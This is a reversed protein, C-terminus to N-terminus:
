VAIFRQIDVIGLPCSDPHARPPAELVGQFAHDDPPQCPPPLASTSASVLADHDRAPPSPHDGRRCRPLLPSGRGSCGQVGHPATLAESRGAPPPHDWSVRLAQSASVSAYLCCWPAVVASHHGRRASRACACPYPRWARAARACVDHAVQTARTGARAGGQPHSAHVRTGAHARRARAHSVRACRARVNCACGVLPTCMYLVLDTTTGAAILPLCVRARLAHHARM